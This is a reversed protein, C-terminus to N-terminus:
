RQPPPEISQAGGQERGELGASWMNRWVGKEGEHWTKRGAEEVGWVRPGEQTKVVPYGWM